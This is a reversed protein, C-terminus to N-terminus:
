RCWSLAILGPILLDRWDSPYQWVRRVVETSQFILCQAGRTGPVNGGDWETVTWLVNEDDVFSVNTGINRRSEPATWM